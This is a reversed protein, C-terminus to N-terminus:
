PLLEEPCESDDMPLWRVTHRPPDLLSIEPIVAKWLSDEPGTITDGREIEVNEEFFYLTINRLFESIEDPDFANGPFCIEHDCTDLQGMGVSDMLCWPECDEFRYFRVNSWLELPLLETEDLRELLEDMTDSNHLTEGNPNFYCLAGPLKLLTRGVLTIYQLEELVQYDRPIVPANTDDLGFVYSSRIRIFGEHSGASEPGEEWFWSQQRARGLDGPYAFPGFHGLSWASFLLPDKKPDGMGDPWHQHVIDVSVLGNVEKRFPLVLADGGMSWHESPGTQHLIEHDKLGDKVMDTTIHRDILIVASQTFLGKETM